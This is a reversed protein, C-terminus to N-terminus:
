GLMNHGCGHGVEIGAPGPTPRPEAANGLGPLADYEPLFGIKPGGEGQTWEALFATPIGSTGESVITFGAERLERLHIQSSIEEHLSLEPNQWVEHSIRLIADRFAEVADRAADASAPPQSPTDDQAWGLSPALTWAGAALSGAVFNRRSTGALLQVPSHEMHNEKLNADDIAGLLGLSWLLGVKAPHRERAANHCAI